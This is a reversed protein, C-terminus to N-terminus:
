KASEASPEDKSAPSSKAPVAHDRMAEQFGRAVFGSVVKAHARILNAVYPDDSTEIVRVGQPTEEHKMVIKDTHRFIEAFLPDRMRIPQTKEIRVQMWHVHEKIKAAVDDDDSETLTDVGNPLETVTRRIRQHNSLLYHFDDRDAAHRDDHPPGSDVAHDDHDDHDAHEASQASKAPEAPQDAPAAPGSDLGRGMGFGGGFGPGRGRGQGRGQGRGFGQGQGFGPGRGPAPGRGFGFRPGQDGEVVENDVQNTAQGARDNAARTAPQTSAPPSQPSHIGGVAPTQTRAPPEHGWLSSDLLSGCGLLCASATWLLTKM